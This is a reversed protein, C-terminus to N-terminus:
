SGPTWGLFPQVFQFVKSCPNFVPESFVKKYGLAQAERRRRACFKPWCSSAFAVLQSHQLAQLSHQVQSPTGSTDHWASPKQRTAPSAKQCWIKPRQWTKDETILTDWYIWGIRKEDQFFAKWWPSLSSSEIEPLARACMDGQETRIQFECRRRQLCLLDLVQHTNSQPFGMTAPRKWHMKKRCHECAWTMGVARRAFMSVCVVTIMDCLEWWWLRLIEAAHQTRRRHGCRSSCHLPSTMTLVRAPGFLGPPLSESEPFPQPFQKTQCRSPKLRFGM